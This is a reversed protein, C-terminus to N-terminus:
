RGRSRGARWDGVVRALEDLMAVDATAPVVIFEDCGAAAVEDLFSTLAEPTHLTMAAALSAAVEPSFVRLYAEAFSRLVDPSSPGLAVFSGTLLRPTEARGAEEWATRAATFGATIGDTDATLAFGSIGKAWQACRALSRPGMASGYLPPGGDQVPTPGVAEGDAAPGGAWLRRLEAVGEDLRRHRNDMSAGLSQYDGPRGGVGVAVDLRGGALVDITALQKAVMAPAHWPLVVVNVMVRVRETIAAAAACLSLGELNHFTIREGASVSSFPGDDIGRCWARVAAGDLGTAMQPLAVGVDV